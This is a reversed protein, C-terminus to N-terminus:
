SARERGTKGRSEGGRRADLVGGASKWTEEWWTSWEKRGLTGRKGEVSLMESPKTSLGQERFKSAKPSM